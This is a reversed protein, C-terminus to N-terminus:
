RSRHSRDIADSMKNAVNSKVECTSQTDDGTTSQLCRDSGEVREREIELTCRLGQHNPQPPDCRNEGDVVRM